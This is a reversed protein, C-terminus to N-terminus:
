TATLVVATRLADAEPTDWGRAWTIGEDGAVIPVLTHAEVEKPEVRALHPTEKSFNASVIKACMVRTAPGGYSRIARSALVVIKEGVKMAKQVDEDTAGGALRQM